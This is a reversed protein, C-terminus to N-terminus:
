KSEDCSCNSNGTKSYPCGVCRAGKRKEIVIKAVAAIVITLIVISVIINGM